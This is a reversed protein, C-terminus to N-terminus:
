PAPPSPPTRPRRCLAENGLLTYLDSLYGAALLLANNTDPDNTNADISM